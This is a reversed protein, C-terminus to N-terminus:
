KIKSQVHLLTGIFSHLDKTDLDMSEFSLLGGDCNLNSISILCKKEERNESISLEIINTNQQKKSITHRM